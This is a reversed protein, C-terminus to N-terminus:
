RLGIGGDVPLVAGTIYASGTGALLLLAQDFDHPQGLRGAPVHRAIARQVQEDALEPNLETLVHGPAICNVRVGDRAWELALVRSMQVLAAKSAAYASVGRSPASAAPSAINIISVSADARKREAVLRALVFPARLNTEFTADWDEDTHDFAPKVVGVGANNVLIGVPGFCAEISAYGALIAERDRIDLAVAAVSHSGLEAVLGELRERRRAVAVVRAGAHALVAAFHRGLGSSAGTVVAVRGAVGWPDTTNPPTTM